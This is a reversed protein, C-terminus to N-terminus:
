HRRIEFLSDFEIRPFVELKGGRTANYIKINHTDAYKRAAQYGALQRDIDAVYKEKHRDLTAQAFREDEKELELMHNMINKKVVTNDEHREVSFNFDVGLLYITKFGMYIALQLMDYTITGAKYIQQSCDESFRPLMDESNGDIPKLYYLQRLELDERFQMGEGLISTFAAKCGDLLMSMSEKDAMMEKCFIPDRACYFDPRWDTHRYLAYITNSAFTYESKLRNLDEIRLSPGNGIVFCREGIYKNRFCQIKDSLAKWQILEDYLEFFLNPDEYSIIREEDVGRVKLEQEVSKQYEFTSVLYYNEGNDINDYTCVEKGNWGRANERKDVYGDWQIGRRDLYQGLIEGYKGAGAIILRKGNCWNLIDIYEELTTVKM